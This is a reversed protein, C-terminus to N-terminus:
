IPARVSHAVAIGGIFGRELRDLPNLRIAREFAEIAAASEPLSVYGRVMWAHASNPNLALARDIATAAIAREGAFYFLTFAAM